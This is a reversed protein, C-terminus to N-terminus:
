MNLRKLARRYTNRHMGLYSAIHSYPFIKFLEPSQNYLEQVKQHANTAQLIKIMDRSKFYRQEALHLRNEAVGPVISMLKNFKLGDFSLIVSDEFCEFWMSIPKQATYAEYDVIYYSKPFYYFDSVVKDGESDYTYSFMSGKILIGFKYWSDSKNLFIDGRKLEIVKYIEDYLKREEETKIFDKFIFDIVETYRNEM